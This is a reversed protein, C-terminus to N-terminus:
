FFNTSAIHDLYASISDLLENSFVDGMLLFDTDSSLAKSLVRARESVSVSPDIIRTPPSDFPAPNIKNLIGDIMAMLTAAAALYHNGHTPIGRVEIVRSRSSQNDQLSRTLSMPTDVAANAAFPFDMAANELVPTLFIAALSAAHKVIGGQAYRAVDSIGRSSNGPFVPEGNKVLKWQTASYHSSLDVSVGEEAAIQEMLYRTMAIDDCCELIKTPQLAIFSGASSYHFHREVNVGADIARNMLQCRFQFAKDFGSGSHKDSNHHLDFKLLTRVYLEDAISTSELFRVAQNAVNRSDWPSEQRHLIDQIGALLVLTPPDTSADLYNAESYPVLVVYAMEATGPPSAELGFSVEQGFGDEFSVESIASVPFTLHQWAGTLDTFRLDITRIGKERCYALVAKPKM